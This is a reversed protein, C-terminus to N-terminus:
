RIYRRDRKMDSQAMLIYKVMDRRRDAIWGKSEAFFSEADLFFNGNVRAMRLVADEVSEAAECSM